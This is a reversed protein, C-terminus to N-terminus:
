KKEELAEALPIIHNLRQAMWLSACELCYCTDEMRPEQYEEYYNEGAKIGRNGRSCGYYDCPRDEDAKLRTWKLSSTVVPDILALDPHSLIAQAYVTKLYDGAGDREYHKKLRKRDREFSVLENEVWEVLKQIKENVM